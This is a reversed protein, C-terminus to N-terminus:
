ASGLGTNDPGCLVTGNVVQHVPETKARDCGSKLGLPSYKDASQCGHVMYKNGLANYVYCGTNGM